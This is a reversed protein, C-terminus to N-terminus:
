DNRAIRVVHLNTGVEGPYRRSTMTIPVWGTPGFARIRCELTSEKDPELDVFTERIADWDEPHFVETDGTEREWDVWSPAPGIWQTIVPRDISTTSALLAAAPGTGVGGTLGLAELPSIPAAQFDSIDLNLGRMGTHRDDKRGRAAAQWYLLRGDNHLVTFTADHFKEPDASIGLAIVEDIADYRVVRRFMEAPSLTGAHPAIDDPLNTMAWSEETLQAQLTELHFCMGAAPRHPGPETDLDGIWVHLGYVDGDPGLVPAIEILHEAGARGRVVQHVTDGNRSRRIEELLDEIDVGDHRSFARLSTWERPAGNKNIITMPESLPALSEVFYWTM